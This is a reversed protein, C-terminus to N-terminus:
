NDGKLKKEAKKLQDQAKEGFEIAKDKAKDKMRSAKGVGEQGKEVAKDRAKYGALSAKETLDESKERIKEDAKYGTLAAQGTIEQAKEKVKNVGKMFTNKAVDVKEQFAEKKKKAAIKEALEKRAEMVQKLTIEAGKKVESVGSQSLSKLAELADRGDRKAEAVSIYALTKLAALNPTGKDTLEGTVEEIYLPAILEMMPRSIDSNEHSCGRNIIRVLEDGEVRGLSDIVEKRLQPDSKELLNFIANDRCITHGSKTQELLEITM